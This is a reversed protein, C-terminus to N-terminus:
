PATGDRVFVVDMASGQSWNATAFNVVQGTSVDFYFQIAWASKSGGRLRKGQDSSWCWYTNPAGADFMYSYVVDM